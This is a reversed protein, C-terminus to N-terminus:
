VCNVQAMGCTSLVMHAKVVPLIPPPPELRRLILFLNNVDSCHWVSRSESEGTEFKMISGLV